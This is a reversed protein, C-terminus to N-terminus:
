ASEDLENQMNELYKVYDAINKDPKLDNILRATRLASVIDGSKVYIGLLAYQSALRYEPSEASKKFMLEARDADGSDLYIRALMHATQADDPKASIHKELATRAKDTDDLNYYSVGMVKNSNEYGPAKLAIDVAEQYRGVSAFAEAARGVNEIDGCELYREAAMAYMGKHFYLDGLFSTERGDLQKKIRLVELASIAPGYEGRRARAKALLKAAGTNEPDKSLLEICIKESEAFSGLEFLLSAKLMNARSGGKSDYIIAQNCSTLASSYDGKKAHYSCLWYLIDTDSGGSLALAKKLEDFAKQEDGMAAYTFGLNKQAMFFSPLKELSKRFNAVAESFKGENYHLNALNFFVAAGAWEKGAAESLIAAAEAPSAEAAKNITEAEKKTVTPIRGFASDFTDARCSFWMLAALIFTIFIKM